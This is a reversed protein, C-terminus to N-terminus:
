KILEWSGFGGHQDGIQFYLVGECNNSKLRIETSRILYKSSNLSDLTFDGGMVSVGCTIVAYGATIPVCSHFRVKKYGAPIFIKEKVAQMDSVKFFGSTKNSFLMKQSSDLNIRQEGHKESEAILRNIKGLDVIVRRYELPSIGMRLCEKESVRLSCRNNKIDVHKFLGDNIEESSDVKMKQSLVNSIQKQRTEM